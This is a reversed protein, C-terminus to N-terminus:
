IDESSAAAKGLSGVVVSGEGDLGASERERGIADPEGVKTPRDAQIFVRDATIRLSQDQNQTTTHSVREPVFGIAALATAAIVGVTAIVLGQTSQATAYTARELARDTFATAAEGDSSRAAILDNAAAEGTSHSDHVGVWLAWTVSALLVVLPIAIRLVGFVWSFVTPLRKLLTPLVGSVLQALVGAGSALVLVPVDVM